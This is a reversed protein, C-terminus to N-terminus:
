EPTSVEGIACRTVGEEPDICVGFSLGSELAKLAMEYCRDFLKREDKGKSIWANQSETNIDFKAEVDFSDPWSMSIGGVKKIFVSHRTEPEQAGPCIGFSASSIATSVFVITLINLYNKM